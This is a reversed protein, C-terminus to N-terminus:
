PKYIDTQGPFEFKEKNFKNKISLCIHLSFSLCLFMKGDARKSGLDSCHSSSLGDSAPPWFSTESEAFPQLTQLNLGDEM